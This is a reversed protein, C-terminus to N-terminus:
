FNFNAALVATRGAGPNGIEVAQTNFADTHTTNARERVGDVAIDNTATFGRINISDGYSGGEGAGFAIGPVDQRLVDRLLLAGQQQIL